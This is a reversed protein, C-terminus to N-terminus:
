EECVVFMSRAFHKPKNEDIWEVATRCVGFWVASLMSDPYGEIHSTLPHDPHDKMITEEHYKDWIDGAENEWLLHEVMRKVAWEKWRM